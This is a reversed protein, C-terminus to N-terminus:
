AYAVQWDLTESNLESNINFTLMGKLKDQKLLRSFFIILKEQTDNSLNNSTTLNIKLQDGSMYGKLLVPGVDDLNVFLQFHGNKKNQNKNHPHNNKEFRIKLSTAPNCPTQLSIGIWNQQDLFRDKSLSTQKADIKADSNKDLTPAIKLLSANSQESNIQM